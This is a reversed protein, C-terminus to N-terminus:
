NITTGRHIGSCASEIESPNNGNIVICKIGSREIIKAALPDIVGTAGAKMVNKMVIKVLESASIRDFKKADSNKKPDKDYIGDVDTAIILLDAGCYEALLAAVADTTHGIHTGGMVITREDPMEEIKEVPEPYPNKLASILLRANLRTFAIGIEDCEAETAGLKRATNIYERSVKGGGVVVYTKIKKKELRSIMDSYKKIREASLEPILVSGGISIVVKKM